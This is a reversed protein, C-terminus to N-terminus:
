RLCAERASRRIAGAIVPDDAIRRAYKSGLAVEQIGGLWQDSDDLAAQAGRRILERVTESPREWRVGAVTSEM